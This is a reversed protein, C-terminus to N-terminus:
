DADTVRVTALHYCCVTGTEIQAALHEGVAPNVLSIEDIARKIAKRVATRAREPADAFSRIRGGLGSARALEQTLTALEEQESAALEPRRRLDSIRQRLEAFARRDMVPDPGFDSAETAGQVVLALAAIGHDPAAVLQTLYRMGVRDAVIAVQDQFVIRWRGTQVRTILVAGLEGQVSAAPTAESAQRWRAALGAMGAAEGAAIADQLLARGRRDESRSARQLRTLGLEAQAQIAAPRHGLEENAEVAAAFHEIALDLKGCTLAALGLARHVSGFCVVALSGMIPLDAYALLADYVAQANQMDGLAYALEAVSMMALLWSSSSPISGLGEKALRELLARAPQPRGARLTFLAAGFGSARERDILTGSAAISAMLDVLEAERGQFFRIASVHAAHYALADADGIESGLAFCAAADAEAEAFAGRRIALMVEMARVIFLVSRCRVADARLRLESLAAAAGADGLLFLDAAHWCLGILSLLGDGATAAAAILESAIARRRWTHEPTLLAHHALSLAEALAQPDGTDRVGQVAELVAVVPGGRYADEAALRITLRGRLVAEAAPLTALARRQLALMREADHALRHESVWVGGLGLAARALSVADRETEALRAAHQFLPRAEALRGCELVAQAQEVVLAAAPSTLGAAGHIQVAQGLLSAASEFGDVAKLGLAAECVIGVAAQADERSRQAAGLAHRARRAVRDPEHGTLLAAARAHADLRESVSLASTAVGRVIEHVFGFRGAALETVLGKAVARTLSEAALAPSTEAVRALEHLSLEPGLLAATGILRRDAEPLREVADRIARELGGPLGSPGLESQVSISRLHLPNGNTVTTVAHLLDSDLASATGAALYTGVAHESLGTLTILTADRGLEALLEVVEAEGGPTAERCTLLLLLSLGRERMLFRALLLSAADSQHADDLVIVATGPTARLHNLVALFRGFRGHAQSPGEELLAEAAGLDRLIARWPWLPPAEGDQWCRGIAVRSRRRRARLGVEEALRTKGIGAPGQIVALQPEGREAAGLMRMIERLEAARGVFPPKRSVRPSGPRGPSRATPRCSQTVRKTHRALVNILGYRIAGV